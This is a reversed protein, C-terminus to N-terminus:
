PTSAAADAHILRIQNLCQSVRLKSWVVHDHLALIKAAALAANGTDISTTCGLGSPLRLSSWVDETGYDQAKIPPCNIVPLITNGALVPGLGNSRGAVAILVTPVGDAEYTALIDLTNKTAKHASSIRSICNKIGFFQSAKIIKNVHEGDDPSGSFIVVRGVPPRLFGDLKDSVWQYNNLIEKLKAPTIDSADRYVQKDKMLRPDGSPWLRWSDNDIVDALLIKGSFVDFGFEIKMDILQCDLSKWAKELVEFVTRTLLLMEDVMEPTITTGEVTLAGSGVEEISWEPDNNADDKFFTELKLPTFVHGESVKPHRKLFSGTAVRRTVWEIPIMNCKRVIMGREGYQRIFHTPLGAKELFEFIKCTTLNSVQAKGELTHKKEGGFATLHDKAEALVLMPEGEIGFIKKTKGEVLLNGLKVEGNSPGM